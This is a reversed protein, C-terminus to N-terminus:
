LDTLKPYGHFLNENNINYSAGHTYLFNIHEQLKKSNTIPVELAVMVEEEEPSLKYPDAPDITPLNTDKILIFKETAILM